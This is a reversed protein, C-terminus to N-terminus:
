DQPPATGTEAVAAGLRRIRRPSGPEVATWRARRAAEPAAVAVSADVAVEISEPPRATERWAYVDVPVTVQLQLGPKLRGGLASWFEGPVGHDSSALSLSARGTVVGPPILDDGLERETLVTQLISGLLQHEDRLETAWATVLYHFDMMPSGPRREIGTPGQRTMMGAAAATASPALNWLFANVTPRNLGAGWTKDPPEFSVGISSEPLPVQQRLYQELARDIFQIM